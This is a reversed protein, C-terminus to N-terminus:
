LVETDPLCNARAITRAGDSFESRLQALRLRVHSGADVAQRRGTQEHTNRAVLVPAAGSPGVPTVPACPNVPGVPTPGDPAVPGVPRASGPAVPSSPDVPGVPTVPYM